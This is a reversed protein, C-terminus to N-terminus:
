IQLHTKFDSIINDVVSRAESSNVIQGSNKSGLVTGVIMNRGTVEYRSYDSDSNGAYDQTNVTNISGGIASSTIAFYIHNVSPDGANYAKNVLWATVICGNVTQTNYIQQNNTSGGGDAGLNGGREWGIRTNQNIGTAIMAMLPRQYGMAGWRHSNYTTNQTNYDIDGAQSGNVRPYLYNGGDYMDGGSDGLHDPSGDLSYNYYSSNRYNSQRSAFYNRLGQFTASDAFDVDPTSEAQGNQAGLVLYDTNGTGTRLIQFFYVDYAFDEGGTAEPAAGGGWEVTQAVGDIKVGLCYTDTGSVPVIITFGITQGVAIKSAFTASGSYRFNPTWSGSATNWLYSQGTQIDHNTDGSIATGTINIKERIFGSNLGLGRTGELHLSHTPTVTGIGVRNNTQDVFIDNTNIKVNGGNEIDISATGSSPIIKNVNLQSM